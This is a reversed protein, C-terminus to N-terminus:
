KIQKKLEEIEAKLEKIAELLIPAIGQHRMSLMGDENERVLEPVVEKVDQAIFGIDEKIDLISDSKKWDFTVGQLKMAKDLASEIPKINEKLRVDSPSGYAIIDGSSTFTGSTMNHQFRTANGQRWYVVGCNMDFYTNSNNTHFRAFNGTANNGIYIDGTGSEGVIIKSKFHSEFAGSSNNGANFQVYTHGASDILKLGENQNTRLVMWYSELGLSNNWSPLGFKIKSTTQLSGAGILFHDAAAPLTMDGNFIVTSEFTAKNDHSLTLATSVTTDCTKFELRAHRESVDTWKSLIQAGTTTNTGSYYGGFNIFGHVDEDEPSTTFHMLDLQAGGVGTNTSEVRIADGSGKIHLLSAPSKTGIGVKDNTALYIGEESADTNGNSKIQVGHGAAARLVMTDLSTDVFIDGRNTTGEYFQIYPDSAKYIQLGGGDVIRFLTTTANDQFYYSNSNFVLSGSGGTEKIYSNSGSDSYIELGSGSTGFNIKDAYGLNINGDVDIEGSSNVNFIPIGSVDSVSFLDGTLSNTVSFLQGATGQVDLVTSSAASGTFTANGSSNLSMLENTENGNSNAYFKFGSSQGTWFQMLNSNISIGSNTHLLIGTGGGTATTRINGAVDLKHSPNTNGIGVDGSSDISMKADGSANIFALNDNGDLGINYKEVDNRQLKFMPSVAAGALLNATFMDGGGKTFFAGQSITTYGATSGVQVDGVFTANGSSDALTIANVSGGGIQLTMGADAVIGSGALTFTGVDVSGAFTANGANNIVFDATGSNVGTGTSNVVPDTNGDVSRVIAFKNNEYANTILFRRASGTMNTDSHLLIQGYTGYWTTGDSYNNKGRVRLVNEYNTTSSTVARNGVTVSDTTTVIGAFTSDKFFELSTVNGASNAANARMWIDNSITGSGDNTEKAFTLDHGGAYLAHRAGSVDNIVLGGGRDGTGALLYDRSATFGGAAANETSTFNTGKVRGAFTADGNHTNFTHKVTTASNRFFIKSDNDNATSGPTQLLLAASATSYLTNTGDAGQFWNNARVKGEFTANQAENVTLATVLGGSTNRTQLIFESEYSGSAWDGAARGMLAVGTNFTDDTPDDGEFNILGLVNGDSISTDDRRLYVTAGAAHALTFDAGTATIDGGATISGAFTATKNTALTLVPHTLLDSMNTSDDHVMFRMGNTRDVSVTANYYNQDSFELRAGNAQNGSNAIRMVATGNGGTNSNWIRSLIEGTSSRTVDVNGAFTALNAADLTLVDSGNTAFVIKDNTGPFQLYTNTDGSHILKEAISVDGDFTSLGSSNVNFIPIGSVDSVSFLDGTLSDTVSFLQGATGQIDLVTNSGDVILGKKVKFENAM